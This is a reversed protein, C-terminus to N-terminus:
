FNPIKRNKRKPLPLSSPFKNSNALSRCLELFNKLRVKPQNEVDQQILRDFFEKSLIVGIEKGRNSIIVPETQAVNLVESFKSKAEAVSYNATKMRISGRLFM